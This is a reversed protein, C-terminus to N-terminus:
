SALLTDLPSQASTDLGKIVHTYIMTTEVYKHGLLEQVERINVGNLLLHTAFSHRLTHVSAHKVVGARKLADKMAKQLPKESMHFRRIVGTATEVSLKTSPFAYQWAWDKAAGPYKRSLAYPMNVEGYGNALDAEHIKKVQELHQILQLKLQKPLMTSRDKDGKSSRIFITNEQFDIDKVRLRTLESIRMGSGYLLQMIMLYRGSLHQFVSKVEEMSLVVPLRTGRKARITGQMNELDRHLVDRFLFLLSNFAQNQTSASVKRRVALYTLFNQVDACSWTDVPKVGKQVQALYENFRSIWHTYTKETKNSYHKIRIVERVKQILEDFNSLAAAPMRLWSPHEASPRTKLYQYFYLKVAQYAQRVQWEERTGSDRLYDLYQGTRTDIEIDLEATKNSYNLFQVVWNACFPINKEDVLKHDSLYRQFDPLLDKYYM